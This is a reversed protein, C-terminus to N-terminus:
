RADIECRDRSCSIGRIPSARAQIVLAQGSGPGGGPLPPLTLELCSQWMYVPQGLVKGLMLAVCAELIGSGSGIGLLVLRREGSSQLRRAVCLVRTVVTACTEFTPFEYIFKQPNACLVQWEVGSRHLDQLCPLLQQRFHNRGQLQVALTTPYDALLRQMSSPVGPLNAASPRPIQVWVGKGPHCRGSPRDLRIATAAAACTVADSDLGAASGELMGLRDISAHGRDRFGWLEEGSV